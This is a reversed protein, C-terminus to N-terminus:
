YETGNKSQKQRKAWAKVKRKLGSKGESRRAMDLAIAIAQKRPKGEAMETKINSSIADRDSGQKLPM